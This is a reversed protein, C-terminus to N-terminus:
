ACVAKTVDRRKQRPQEPPYLDPRTQQRTVASNTAREIRIAMEATIVRWGNELSRLTSLSVGIKKALVAVTLDHRLRYVRLTSYNSM